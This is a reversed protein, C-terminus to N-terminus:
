ASFTKESTASTVPVVLCLRLLKHIKSFIKIENMAECITQISTVAGADIM